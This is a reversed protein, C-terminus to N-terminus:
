PKVQWPIEETDHYTQRLFLKALFIGLAITVSWDRAM